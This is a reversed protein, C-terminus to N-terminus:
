VPLKLLRQLQSIGWSVLDTLVEKPEVERGTQIAKNTMTLTRGIYHFHRGKLLSGELELETLTRLHFM